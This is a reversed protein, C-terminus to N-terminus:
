GLERPVTISALEATGAALDPWGVVDLRLVALAGTPFKAELARRQASPRALLLGLDQLGPNHGVVMVSLVPRPVARLRRLLDQASAAYLAPEVSVEVKASFVKRLPKLTELTRRAPSCLVLAPEIGQRELHRAIAAAARRGRPALPRDHDPIGSDEWSSKAHRLLYAVHM